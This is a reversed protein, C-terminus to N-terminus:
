QLLTDSINKLLPTMSMSDLEKVDDMESDMYDHNMKRTPFTGGSVTPGANM